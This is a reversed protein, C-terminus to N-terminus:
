ASGPAQAAGQSAGHIHEAALFAFTMAPGITSGAGPYASGMMSASSNGIAYLGDIVGGDEHLVRAHIDTLLGGKTGIDGADVRVAYFPAKLLPALCPNPFVHPDGYYRDFLSEGKHFDPDQGSVAYRNFRELTRELGAADIGTRAALEAVSSAKQFYGHLHAPLRADPQVYGPLLAGCPYKRRFEADFVLWCPVSRAEASDHAYMAYVIDSYPAAENVFRQGASDVLVCGPLTREVFLARQKEEGEVRTTPAWWSHEMLSITGGLAQGARIGDGTNIPPAASWQTLSPQPHYTSRMAQNREFGGAAIVVACRARIRQVRGNRRLEAGVVRGNAQVLSELSSELWLPVRRELLSRRLAAVLANGLTLFRDRPSKCRGGIDRWYRWLIRASLGIWGRGRCLLVRAEQMTMTMRGMMLTGPSPPRLRAFEEGLERADFPLPDMSRFGSKGGPVEPYYDAYEPQAEFRVRSHRELYEVMRRGHEVYAEIRGDNVTNGSVARIYSVAEDARDHGGLADIRHNCPIWIGGGSVASTGGYCDSKEVLLVKLGLDHARLAATMGGAGSGVVLVDCCHDWTDDRLAKM